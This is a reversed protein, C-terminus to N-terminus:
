HQLDYELVRRIRVFSSEANFLKDLLQQDLFYDPPFGSDIKFRKLGYEIIYKPNLNDSDILDLWYIMKQKFQHLSSLVQSDLNPNESSLEISISNIAIILNNRAEKIHRELQKM